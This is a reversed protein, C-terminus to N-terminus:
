PARSPLAQRTDDLYDRRIDVTQAPRARRFAAGALARGAQGAEFLKRIM